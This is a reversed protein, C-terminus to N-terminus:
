VKKGQKENKRINRLTLVFSKLISARISDRSATDCGALARDTIASYILRSERQSILGSDHLSILVARASMADIDDGIVALTHILMADTGDFSVKTIKVFGGGGRRSEVIYGRESSFRSTIVYNIQSPVCGVRSALKNRQLELEGGNEALMKEIIAAIQETMPNGM